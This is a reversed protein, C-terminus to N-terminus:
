FLYIELETKCRKLMIERLNLKKRLDYYYQANEVFIENMFIPSLGNKVKFLKTALFQIIETTYLQRTIKGLSNLLHLHM